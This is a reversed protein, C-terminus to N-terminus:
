GRVAGRGGAGGNAKEKMLETKEGKECRRWQRRARDRKIKLLRKKLGQMCGGVADPPAHSTFTHGM